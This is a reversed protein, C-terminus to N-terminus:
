KDIRNENEDRHALVFISASLIDIQICIEKRHCVSIAIFCTKTDRM